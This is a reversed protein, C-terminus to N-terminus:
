SLSSDGDDFHSSVKCRLIPASVANSYPKNRFSWPTIHYQAFEPIIHLKHYHNLVGWGARFPKYLSLVYDSADNIIVNSELRSGPLM